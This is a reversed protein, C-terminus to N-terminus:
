REGMIERLIERPIGNTYPQHDGGSGMRVRLAAANARVFDVPPMLELGGPRFLVDWVNTDVAVQQIGRFVTLLNTSAVFAVEPHGDEIMVNSFKSLAAIRQWAAVDSLDAEIERCLNTAADFSDSSAMNEAHDLLISAKLLKCTSRELTDSASLILTDLDNTVAFCRRYDNTAMFSVVEPLTAVPHAFAAVSFIAAVVEILVKKVASDKRMMWM